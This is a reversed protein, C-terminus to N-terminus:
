SSGIEWFPLSRRTRYKLHIKQTVSSNGTRKGSRKLAGSTTVSIHQTFDAAPLFFFKSTSGAGAAEGQARHPM